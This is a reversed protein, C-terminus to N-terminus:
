NSNPRNDFLRVFSVFFLHGNGIAEPVRDSKKWSGFADWNEDDVTIEIENGATDRKRISKSMSTRNLFIKRSDFIFSFWTFIATAITQIHIDNPV